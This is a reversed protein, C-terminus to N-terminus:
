WDAVVEEFPELLARGVRDIEHRDPDERHIGINARSREPRFTPPAPAGPDEGLWTLLERRLSGDEVFREFRVPFLRPRLEADRLTGLIRTYRDRMMAVFDDCAMAYPSELKQSVYQDRPDRLVPIAVGHTFLDVRDLQHGVIPNNLLAASGPPTRDAVVADLFTRLARRAEGDARGPDDGHEAWTRRLEAVLWRLQGALRDVREDDGRVWGLLHRGTQGFGFASALVADAVVAPDPRRPGSGEEVITALHGPKKLFGTEKDAFPTHFRPYGRLLDFVAGSGSYLFGSVCVVPRHDGVEAPSPSAPPTLDGDHAADLFDHLDQVVPLLRAVRAAPNGKGALAAPIAAGLAGREGAHWRESAQRFTEEAEANRENAALTRAAQHADDRGAAEASLEDLAARAAALDGALRSATARRLAAEDARDPYRAALQESLAIAEPWRRLVLEIEAATSLGPKTVTGDDRAARLWVRADLLRAKWVYRDDEESAAYGRLAIRGAEVALSPDDGVVARGREVAEQAAELDRRLRRARGLEAFPEAGLIAVEPHGAIAGWATAARGWDRAASAARAAALADPDPGSRTLARLTALPRKWGM